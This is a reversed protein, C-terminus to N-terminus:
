SAHRIRRAQPQAAVQAEMEIVANRIRRRASAGQVNKAFTSVVDNMLSRVEDPAVMRPNRAGYRTPYMRELAWKAARWGGDKAGAAFITKLYALEPSVEYRSIQEAFKKDRCAENYITRPHCGVFSAAMARTGGVSLIALINEKKDPDLAKQMKWRNTKKPIFSSEM